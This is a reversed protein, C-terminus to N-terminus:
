IRPKLVELTQASRVPSLHPMQNTGQESLPLPRCLRFLWRHRLWRLFSWSGHKGWLRQRIFLLATNLFPHLAVPCLGSSSHLVRGWTHHDLCSPACLLIAQRTRLYKAVGAVDTGHSLNTESDTCTTWFFHAARDDLFTFLSTQKLLQSRALFCCYHLCVRCQINYSKEKTKNHRQPTEINM